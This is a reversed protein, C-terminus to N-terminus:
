YSLPILHNDWRFPFRGSRPGVRASERAVLGTGATILFGDDLPAVGCVDEMVLQGSLNGAPLDFIRCLGGRPSTVALRDMGRSVAISGTYGLMSGAVSREAELFRVRGDPSCLGVLPPHETLDGEWQMAFAVSGDRAVALHRISNRSLSAELEVTELMAGDLGLYALNPRMFPINLKSRGAEPHTAIGGNAVVLTEGEPMLKIDHPGVGGSDFEGIREYGGKTTWVGIVGRAAGYDNETTFLVGGDGSFVGHGNFHRGPPTHLRVSERGSVCDVVSAFVGPRRAFAVAQALVPHAAAAHGRAPLPFEFALGGQGNLGCLIFTGDLKMGASLFAPRGVDAWVPGPCFGAALMGAILSRRDPM